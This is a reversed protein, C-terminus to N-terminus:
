VSRGSGDIWTDAEIRKEVSKCEEQSAGKYRETICHFDGRVAPARASIDCNYCSKEYYLHLEFKVKQSPRVQASNYQQGSQCTPQGSWKENGVVM